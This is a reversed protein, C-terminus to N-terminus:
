RYDLHKMEIENDYYIEQKLEVVGWNRGSVTGEEAELLSIALSEGAAARRRLDEIREERALYRRNREDPSPGRPRVRPSWSPTPLPDYTPM